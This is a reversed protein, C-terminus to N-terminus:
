GDPPRVRLGRWAFGATRVQYWEVGISPTLWRRSLRGFDGVMPRSAPPMEVWLVLPDRVCVGDPRFSEDLTEALGSCQITDIQYYM